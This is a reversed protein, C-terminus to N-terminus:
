VMDYLIDVYKEVLGFSNKKAEKEWWREGYIPMHERIKQTLSQTMFQKVHIMEHSITNYIETINRDGKYVIIYYEDKFEVEYCLGLAGNRLPTDTAEITIIDPYVSLEDCCFNIFKSALTNELGLIELKM